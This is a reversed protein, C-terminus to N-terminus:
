YVQMGKSKVFAILNSSKTLQDFLDMTEKRWEENGTPTDIDSLTCHIAQAPYTCCNAPLVKLQDAGYWHSDGHDFHLVEVNRKRQMEDVNTIIGRYWKGNQASQVCCLKGVSCGSLQSSQMCDEIFNDPVSTCGCSLQETNRDIVPHVYFSLPNVVFCVVVSFEGSFGLNILLSPLTSTTPSQINKIPSTCQGRSSVDHGSQASVISVVDDPPSLSESICDSFERTILNNGTNQETSIPTAALRFSQMMSLLSFSSCNSDSTYAYLNEVPICKPLNDLSEASRIVELPVCVDVEARNGELWRYIILDVPKEAILTHLWHLIQPCLEKDSSCDDVKLYPPMIEIGALMCLMAQRPFTSFQNELARIRDLSLSESNGYDM